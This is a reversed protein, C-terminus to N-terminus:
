ERPYGLFMHSDSRLSFKHRRYLRMNPYVRCGFTRLPILNPPQGFLHQYLSEGFLSMSKVRNYLFTVTTFAHYWFELPLKTHDLLSLGIDVIHWHRREMSGMQQHIYPCSRRHAIGHDSLITKLVLFEGGNNTQIARIKRNCLLEVHKKFEVFM